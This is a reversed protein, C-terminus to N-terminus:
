KHFQLWEQFYHNTGPPLEKGKKILEKCYTSLSSAHVTTKILDERNDSKLYDFLSREGGKRISVRLQPEVRTVSGIGEYSASRKKGQADLLEILEKETKDLREQTLALNKKKIVKDESLVKFSEVLQKERDQTGEM